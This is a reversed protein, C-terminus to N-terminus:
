FLVAIHLSDVANTSDNSLLAASSVITKPLIVLYIDTGVEFFIYHM